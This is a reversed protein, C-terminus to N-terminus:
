TSPRGPGDVPLFGNYCSLIVRLTLSRQESPTHSSFVVPLAHQLTRSPQNGLGHVQEIRM